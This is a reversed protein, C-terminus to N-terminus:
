KASEWQKLREETRIVSDAIIRQSKSIDEISEKLSQITIREHKIAESRSVRFETNARVEDFTYDVAKGGVWGLCIGGVLIVALAISM